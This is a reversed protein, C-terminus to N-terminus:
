SSGAEGAGPEAQVADHHSVAGKSRALSRRDKAIDFGSAIVLEPSRVAAAELLAAIEDLYSTLETQLVERQAIVLKSGLTAEHYTADHRTSAALYSAIM